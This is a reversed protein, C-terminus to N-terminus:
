PSVSCMELSLTLTTPTQRHHRWLQNWYRPIKKEGKKERTTFDRVKDLMLWLALCADALNLSGHSSAPFSRLTNMNPKPAPWILLGIGHFQSLWEWMRENLSAVICVTCLLQWVCEKYIGRKLHSEDFQPNPRASAGRIDCQNTKGSTHCACVHRYEKRESRRRYSYLGTTM